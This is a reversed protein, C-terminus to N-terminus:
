AVAAAEAAEAAGTGKVATSTSTGLPHKVKRKTTTQGGESQTETNINIAQGGGQALIHIGVLLLVVGLIMLGAREALDQLSSAGVLGALTNFADGVIGSVSLSGGFLGSTSTGGTGATINAGQGAASLITNAYGAGAALNGPGANYAELAKQVSGGEQKLLSSMYVEYVKAEDAPNFETNQGVGAQAAYTSYTSPLFQLWGLAGASSQATANFGSEENAQAAVVSYPLGTASAM